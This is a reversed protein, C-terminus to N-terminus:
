DFAAVSLLVLWPVTMIGAFGFIMIVYTETIKEQPTKPEKHKKQAVKKPGLLVPPGDVEVWNAKGDWNYTKGSKFQITYGEFDGRPPFRTVRNVIM